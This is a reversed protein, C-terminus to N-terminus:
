FYLHKRFRIENSITCACLFLPDVINKVSRLELKGALKCSSWSNLRRLARGNESINLTQFLIEFKKRLNYCMMYYKLGDVLTCESMNM